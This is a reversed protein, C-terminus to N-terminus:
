RLTVPFAAITTPSGPSTVTQTFTGTIVAGNLAGAFDYTWNTGLNGPHSGTFGLNATTGHVDPSPSCCGDMESSGVPFAGCNSQAVTRTQGVQGTGTVTGDSATKIDMSVTGIHMITVSCVGFNEAEPGSFPGSYRTVDGGDGRSALQKAAVAGGAVAGGVVALTTTSLGGGVGAGGSAGAASGGTGGGASAAAAQAATMVNTQAITVAATQGQFTATASIQLAGSGTPTLGSATARGALNTTVTVTRSGNFSARAGQIAFRVVAGAVPQDNRDRVEVVPAVATKQRIVNVADEGQIVVISLGNPQGQASSFKRATLSVTLRRTQGGGVRVIRGNELYGEKQLRVRHDGAELKPLSVPTRGVFQGDVYVAADEPTSDISLAAGVAKAEPSSSAALNMSFSEAVIMSTAFLVAASRLNM